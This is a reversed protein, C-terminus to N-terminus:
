RRNRLAQIGLVITVVLGALIALDILISELGTPSLDM